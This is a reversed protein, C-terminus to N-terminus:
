DRKPNVIRPDNAKKENKQPKGRGKNSVWFYLCHSTMSDHSGYIDLGLASPLAHLTAFCGSAM